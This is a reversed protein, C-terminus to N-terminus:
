LLIVTKGRAQGSRAEAIAAPVDDLAVENDIAVRLRGSVALDAIVALAEPTADSYFNVARLGRGTLEDVDLAGNTSIAVGGARLLSVLPAAQGAVSVLDLLADIGEPHASAVQAATPGRTFDVVEDAGLERLHETLDGPGTAIVRAGTAAAFQVASQGVGGSAGNVLITRGPALAAAIIAQYAAVSATPLAAALEFSLGDPIVVLKGDAPAVVLEAYSGRGLGVKMFQGYVRDGARFTDVGSGVREVVGAADSGMVLPFPHDVVGRLAGEAVKWDFPNVGAARVRVLVEGPGPEPDPLDALVPEAGFGPIVV